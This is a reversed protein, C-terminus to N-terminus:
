RLDDFSWRMGVRVEHAALNRFTMAGFADANTSVDGFNIYRYGVDLMLNHTVPAALGAMTAYTFNWQDSSNSTFPPAVTSSYGSVRTYAVGAGAGIYPTVGYWTGLDLYGNFLFSTASIKASVDGPSVITGTYKLPALYEVTVDTRLWRTKVGVGLGGTVAGDLSNDTPNIYGTAADAGGLRGWAYGIDGRLYWGNLDFLHPSHWAPAPPPPYEGPMDAALAVASLAALMGACLCLQALRSMFVIGETRM